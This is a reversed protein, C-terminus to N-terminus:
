SPPYDCEEDNADGDSDDWDYAGASDTKSAAQCGPKHALPTAGEKGKGKLDKMEEFLNHALAGM